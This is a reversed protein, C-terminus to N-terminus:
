LATSCQRPMADTGRTFNMSAQFGQYYFISSRDLMFQVHHGTSSFPPPVVLYYGSNATMWQQNRGTANDLLYDNYVFITGNWSLVPSPGRSDYREVPVSALGGGYGYSYVKSLAQPDALFGDPGMADPIRVIQMGSSPIFTVDFDVGKTLPVLRFTVNDGAQYSSRDVHVGVYAIRGSQVNAYAISSIAATIVVLIIVILALYVRKIRM